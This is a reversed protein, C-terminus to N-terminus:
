CPGWPCCSQFFWFFFGTVGLSVVGFVCIPCSVQSSLPCCCWWSWFSWPIWPRWCRYLYVNNWWAYITTKDKQLYERDPDNFVTVGSINVGLVFTTVFTLFTWSVSLYYRTEFFWTYSFYFLHQWLCLLSGYTMYLPYLVQLFVMLYWQFIIIHNKMILYYFVIYYLEWYPFPENWFFWLTMYHDLEGIFNMLIKWHQVVSYMFSFFTGLTM